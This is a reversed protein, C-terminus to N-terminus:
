CRGGVIDLGSAGSHYGLVGGAECGAANREVGDDGAGARDGAVGIM